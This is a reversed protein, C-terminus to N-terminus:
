TNLILPCEAYMYIKKKPIWGNRIVVVEEEINFVCRSSSSDM